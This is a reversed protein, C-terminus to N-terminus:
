YLMRIEAEIFEDLNGDLVSEAQSTEVGTRLDKVLQYPHLVYSRIQNGWSAAKYVGKLQQTEKARDSQQKQWLKAKLLSLAIKRNQEQFRQTQCAVTIGTPKHTLRVATSVKNVNQGGHGTARFSAFEIDDPNIQIQDDIEPLEPLVEVLAFSTQRLNDANFPSQRVLRHTGREGTLYGYAYPGTITVTVTKLGAEEGPTQDVIEFGWNRSECFHMYMRLLMSVWDMAETGGQGAHISVIANGFDYPGNLFTALELKAIAKTLKRVHKVLEESEGMLDSLGIAEDLESNLHDVQTKEAQLGALRKMTNQATQPDSWFDPHASNAELERIQRDLLDPNIKTQIQGLRTKLDELQQKLDSM